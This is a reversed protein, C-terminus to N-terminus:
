RPHPNGHGPRRPVPQLGKIITRRYREYQKDSVGESPGDTLASEMCKRHIAVTVLNALENVVVAFQDDEFRRDCIPCRAVSSVVRNGHEDVVAVVNVIAKPDTM